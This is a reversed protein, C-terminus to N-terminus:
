ILTLISLTTMRRQLRFVSNLLCHYFLIVNLVVVLSIISERDNSRLLEGCIDIIDEQLSDSSGTLMTLILGVVDPIIFKTLDSSSDFHTDASHFM